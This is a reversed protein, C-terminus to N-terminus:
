HMGGGRKMRERERERQGELPSGVVTPSMLCLEFVYKNGRHCSKHAPNIHNEAFLLSAWSM